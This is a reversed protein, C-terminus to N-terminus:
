SRGMRPLRLHSPRQQRRAPRFRPSPPKPSLPRGTPTVCPRRTVRPWPLDARQSPGDCGPLVSGPGAGRVGHPNRSLLSGMAEVVGGTELDDVM